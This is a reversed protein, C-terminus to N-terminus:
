VFLMSKRVKFRWLKKWLKFLLFAVYLKARLDRIKLNRSNSSGLFQGQSSSELSLFDFNQTRWEKEIIVKLYINSMEQSLLDM